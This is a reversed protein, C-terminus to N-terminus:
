DLERKLLERIKKVDASRRTKKMVQGILYDMSKTEGNLYDKVAKKHERVVVRVIKTLQEDKLPKEYNLDILIKEPTRVKKGDIYDKVMERVLLEAIEDSILYQQLLDLIRRLKRVDVPVDKLKLNHYNLTKKLYKALLVASTKENHTECMYEFYHTLEPETLLTDVLEESLGYKLFRHKKKEPLEPLKSQIKKLLGESLEFKPLDPEFIYGYDAEGEKERASSTTKTKENWLRTEMKVEHINKQRLAEYGLAKEIEKAGSINKIEVREGYKKETKLGGKYDYKNEYRVTSINADIRMNGEKDFDSVYIFQLIQQLKQVFLRAERPSKLDPETVIEVLPIGSRNYDVLAYGDKRVIRAPDEELHIRRIRIDKDGVRLKGNQAIPIEYQTIQFNKALDPYFYTKRSFMFEKNIELELAYAIKLALEIAKENLVPKTGPFGLCVDCVHGNPEAQKTSCPCFLKTETNLQVHVELGIMIEQM